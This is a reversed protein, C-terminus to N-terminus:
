ILSLQKAYAALTTLDISRTIQKQYDVELAEPTVCADPAPRHRKKNLDVYRQKIYNFPSYKGFWCLLLEPHIGIINSPYTTNILSLNSYDRLNHRGLDYPGQRMKHLLRSRSPENTPVIPNPHQHEIYGHTRQLLLPDETLPRDKEEPSDVMIIGTTRVGSVTPFQREFDKIFQSLHPSLLFETTNLAIKWGPHQREYTQVEADCNRARFNKNRTTHIEWTPALQKIIEV